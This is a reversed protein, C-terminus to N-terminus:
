SFFTAPDIEEIDDNNQIPQQQIIPQVPNQFNQNMFFDRSNQTNQVLNQNLAQNQAQNYQYNNNVQQPQNNQGTILNMSKEDLVMHVNFFDDPNILDQNVYEEM